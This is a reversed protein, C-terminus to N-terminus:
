WSELTHRLVPVFILAGALMFMIVFAIIGVAIDGEALMMVGGCFMVVTGVIFLFAVLNM